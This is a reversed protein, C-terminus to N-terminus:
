KLPEIKAICHDNLEPEDTGDLSINDRQSGSKQVAVTEESIVIKQKTVRWKKLKRKKWKQQPQKTM